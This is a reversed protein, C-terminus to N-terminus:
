EKEKLRKELEEIRRQDAEHQEILSDNKMRYENAEAKATKAEAKATKAEAKATKAEAKATKAEAKAINAEAEAAEVKEAWKDWTRQYMHENAVRRRIQEKIKEDDSLQWISSVAKDIEPNKTAEMKLDEWSKAKFMRAWADIHYAKDEDTALDIRKLNVNSIKFKETYVLEPNKQNIVKFTSYFEPAEEFLTFDTFSIQIIGEADMYDEGHSLADFSRCAYLLSREIWGEQRVVQMELNVNRSNNLYANVDLHFEKDDITEGLIIPNTVEIEEIDSKKIHLLDAVLARLTDEDAQLLARFLYDNTLEVPLKGSLEKWGDNYPIKNNYSKEM